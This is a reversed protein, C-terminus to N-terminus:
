EAVPVDDEDRVLDAAGSPGKRDRDRGGGIWLSSGALRVRDPEANIQERVEQFGRLGTGKPKYEMRVDGNMLNFAVVIARRFGSCM